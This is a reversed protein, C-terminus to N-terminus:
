DVYRTRSNSCKSGSWPTLTTLHSPLFTASTVRMRSVVQQPWELLLLCGRKFVHFCMGSGGGGDGDGCGDSCTLFFTLHIHGPQPPPHPSCTPCLTHPTLQPLPTPPMRQLNSLILESHIFSSHDTSWKRATPMSARYVSVPYLFANCFTFDVHLSTKHPLYETQSACWCHESWNLRLLFDSRQDTRCLWCAYLKRRRRSGKQRASLCAESASLWHLLSFTETM